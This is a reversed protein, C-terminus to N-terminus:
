RDEVRLVQLNSGCQDCAELGTDVYRKVRM